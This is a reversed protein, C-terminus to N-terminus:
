TFPTGGTTVILDDIHTVDVPSSVNVVKLGREAPLVLAMNGM